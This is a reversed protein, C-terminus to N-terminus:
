DDEFFKNPQGSLNINKGRKGVQSNFGLNIFYKSAGMYRLEPKWIKELCAIIHMLKGPYNKIASGQFM